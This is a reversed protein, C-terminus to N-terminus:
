FSCYRYKMSADAQTGGGGGRCGGRAPSLLVGKRRHAERRLRRAVAVVAGGQAQVGGGEAVHGRLGEALLELGREALPTRAADAAHPQAHGRVQVAEDARRDLQAEGEVVCAGRVDHQVRPQLVPLAPQRLTGAVLDARAAQHQRGVSLVHEHDLLLRADRRPHLFEPLQGPAQHVPTLVHLRPRAALHQLLRPQLSPEAGDGAETLVVSRKEPEAVQVKDAHQLQVFRRVRVGERAARQGRRRRALALHGRAAPHGDGLETRQGHVVLGPQVAVQDAGREVHGLSDVLALHPRGAAAPPPQEVLAQQVRHRLPHLRKVHCRM